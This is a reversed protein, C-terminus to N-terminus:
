KKMLEYRGIGDVGFEGCGTMWEKRIPPLYGKRLKGSPMGHSIYWFTYCHFDSIGHTKPLPAYDGENYKIVRDPNDLEVAEKAANFFKEIEFRSMNYQEKGWATKDLTENCFTEVVVSPHNRTLREMETVQKLASGFASLKLYSFLPFDSQCLMGLM